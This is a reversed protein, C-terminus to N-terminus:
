NFGREKKISDYAENVRQFKEHAASQFEEGLHAVKDPHFKVAMLRFAKKIEGDSAEPSIELIKYASATEKYFMAQVSEFDPTSVGMDMAINFITRVEEKAVHDDAKAIGFLFHLLQVRSAYDMHTRIQGCIESCSFEQSLISEMALMYREANAAGFQRTYFREVYNLESKEVRGDAKVVAASLVLLSAAFDGPRTVGGDQGGVEVRLNGIVSGFAYGILAGIPGGFAWGLGGGIWKAYNGM